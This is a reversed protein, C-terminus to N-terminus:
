AAVPAAEGDLAAAPDSDVDPEDTEEDEVEDVAAEEVQAVVKAADAESYRFMQSPAGEVKVEVNLEGKNSWFTAVAEYAGPVAALGRAVARKRLEELKPNADEIKARRAM